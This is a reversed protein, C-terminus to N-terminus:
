TVKLGYDKALKALMALNIRFFLTNFMYCIIIVVVVLPMVAWKRREM